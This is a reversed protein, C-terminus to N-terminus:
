KFLGEVRYQTREPFGPLNVSSGGPYWGLFEEALGERQRWMRFANPDAASVSSSVRVADGPEAFFEGMAEGKKIPKPQQSGQATRLKISSREVLPRDRICM